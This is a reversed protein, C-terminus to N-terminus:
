RGGRGQISDILRQTYDHEPREYVDNAENLEVINGDKMVATRDSVFRILELDHSIFVYTLGFEEKVDLLLNIIQAQISVDLASTPEDCIILDPRVSLARAIGVRQRQGGSLQHPYDDLISPDLGVQDMLQEAREHREDASLSTLYKMGEEVSNRVRYRPDLSDMPDQFVVQIDRRVSRFASQSLHDIREGKFFIQGDTPDTLRLMLRALTTKGCGSEGVLGLIEGNRVTLDVGDVAKEYDVTRQFIGELEPFWKRLESTELIFENGAM